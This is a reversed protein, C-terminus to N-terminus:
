WKDILKQLSEKFGIEEAKEGAVVNVEDIVMNNKDFVFLKGVVDGKKIPAKLQYVEYDTSYIFEENKAIFKNIDKEPYLSITNKSNKPTYLSIPVESNVM